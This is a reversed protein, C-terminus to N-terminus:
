ECLVRKPGDATLITRYRPEAKPQQKPLLRPLQHFFGKATMGMHDLVWKEPKKVFASIADDLMQCDIEPPLGKIRGVIYGKPTPDVIGTRAWKAFFSRIRNDEKKKSSVEEEPERRSGIKPEDRSGIVLAIPEDPSLIAERYESTPRLTYVNHKEERDVSILCHQSLTEIAKLVTNKSFGTREVLTAVSPFVDDKGPRTFSVMLSFVAFAYAGINPLLELARTPIPAFTFGAGDVVRFTEPKAM